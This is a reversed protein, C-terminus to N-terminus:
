ESIGREQTRSLVCWPGVALAGGKGVGAVGRWVEDGVDCRGQEDAWVCHSIDHVFGDGVYVGVRGDGCCTGWERWGRTRSDTGGM